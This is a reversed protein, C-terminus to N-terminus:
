DDHGSQTSDISIDQSIEGFERLRKLVHKNVILSKPFKIVKFM